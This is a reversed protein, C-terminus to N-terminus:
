PVPRIATPKRQLRLFLDLTKRRVPQRRAPFRSIDQLLNKLIQLPLLPYNLKTAYRFSHYINVLIKAICLPFPWYRLSTRNVNRLQFYIFKRDSRGVPSPAHFMMSKPELYCYFGQDLMRLAFDQEEGQRNFDEAYGGLNKFVDARILSCGGFFLAQYQGQAMGDLPTTVVRGDEVTRISSCVVGISADGEARAVALTVADSDLWGDDDLFYIFTGNCHRAGANRGSPCGLNEPLAVYRIEPYKGKVYIETDDESHNDVVVIEKNPYTQALASDISRSLEARRNWTLILISVLPRSM